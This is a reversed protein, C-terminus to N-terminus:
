EQLNGRLQPIHLTRRFYGILFGILYISMMKEMNRKLKVIMEQPLPTQRFVKEVINDSSLM